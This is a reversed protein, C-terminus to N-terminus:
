RQHDSAAPLFFFIARLAVSKIQNALVLGFAASVKYRALPIQLSASPLVAAARVTLVICGVARPAVSKILSAQVAGL